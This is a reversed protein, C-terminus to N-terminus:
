CVIHIVGIKIKACEPQALLDLDFLKPVSNKVSIAEFKMALQRVNNKSMM